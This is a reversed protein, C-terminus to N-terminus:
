LFRYLYFFLAIKNLFFHM